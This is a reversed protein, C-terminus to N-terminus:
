ADFKPFCCRKYKKGSGCPCPDNRGVRKTERKIPKPPGQQGAADAARAQGRQMAAMAGPARVAPQAQAPASVQQRGQWRSDLKRDDEEKVELRFFLNTVEEAIATTLMQFKEFGEKKYEVKPDIQAYSRLGIGKKIADMARLHDKWRSDITNLLLFRELVGMRETGLSEEREGFRVELRE